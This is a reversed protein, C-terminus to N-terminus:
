HSLAKIEARSLLCFVPKMVPDSCEQTPGKCLGLIWGRCSKRSPLVVVHPLLLGYFGMQLCSAHARGSVRFIATCVRQTRTPSDSLGRSDRCLGRLLLGTAEM